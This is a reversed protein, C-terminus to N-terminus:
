DGMMKKMYDISEKRDRLGEDEVVERAAPPPAEVEPAPVPEGEAGPAAMAGGPKEAEKARQWKIAQNVVVVTIVLAMITVLTIIVEPRSLLPLEKTKVKEPASQTWLGETDYVVVTVYYTHDPDLREITYKALTQTTITDVRKGRNTSSESIYVEYKEFDSEQNPEWELTIKKETTSTRLIDSYQPPQNVVTRRYVGLSFGMPGVPGRNVLVFAYTGTKNAILEGTGQVEVRGETVMLTVKGVPPSGLSQRPEFVLLDMIVDSSWNGRDYALQLTLHDGVTLGVQYVYVIEDEGFAAAAARGIDGFDTANTDAQVIFAAYGLKSSLNAFMLRAPEALDWGSIAIVGTPRTNDVRVQHIPNTSLGSTLLKLDFAALEAGLLRAALVNWQNAPVTFQYQENGNHADVYARDPGDLPAGDVTASLNYRLDTLPGHSLVVVGYVAGVPATYVVEQETQGGDRSWVRPGATTSATTLYTTGPGFLYLGLDYAYTFDVPVRLALDVTSGKAIFMTHLAGAQRESLDLAEGTVNGRSASVQVQYRVAKGDPVASTVHLYHPGIGPDLGAGDIVFAAVPSTMDLRATALAVSDLTPWRITATVASAPESEPLRVVVMTWDGPTAQFRYGDEANVPDLEGDELVNHTVNFGDVAYRLDYQIGTLAGLNAVVVLHTGQEQAVYLVAPDADPGPMSHAAVGDGAALSHYLSGPGLVIIALEYGYTYNAPPAVRVDLAQHPDLDVTYTHLFEGPRLVNGRLDGTSATLQRPTNELELVYDPAGEAVEEKVFYTTSSTLQRGDVALLGLARLEPEGRGGPAPVLGVQEELLPNTDLATSHLRHYLRGDMPDVLRSGVVNWAGRAAVFQYLDIRNQANLDGTVPGDDVLSRGQIVVQLSFPIDDRVEFNVVAIAYRGSSPCTFVVDQETGVGARSMAVPGEAYDPLEGSVSYYKSGPPFVFLGLDYDYNYEAAVRLRLDVTQTRQLQIEYLRFIDMSTLSGQTTTNNSPLTMGSSAFQVTFPLETGRTDYRERVFYTDPTALEHGNIAIIGVPSQDDLKDYAITNSDPTPWHLSHMADWDVDGRVKAVAASWRDVPVSFRYYDELNVDTLTEEDLQGNNLPKGNLGVDLRFEVDDPSGTNLVVICYAGPDMAVFTFAQESNAGVASMAVPVVGGSGEYQHYRDTPKFLLLALNYNYTWEPPVRLRLDLTDRKVLDIEYAVVIGDPGLSDTVPQSSRPLQLPGRRLQLAFSPSYTGLVQSVTYQTPAALTHGNIAIVGGRNLNGYSGVNAQTIPGPSSSNTRLESRYSGTGVYNNSAVITWEGPDATFNYDVRQNLEDLTGKVVTDDPLTPAASAVLLPGIASALLLGFVLVAPGGFRTRAM